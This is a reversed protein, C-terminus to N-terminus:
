TKSGKCLWGLAKGVYKLGKFPLALAQGALSLVKKSGPIKRFILFGLTATLVTGVASFLENRRQRNAIKNRIQVCDSDPLALIGKASSGFYNTRYGGANLVNQVQQYATPGGIFYPSAPNQVEALMQREAWSSM